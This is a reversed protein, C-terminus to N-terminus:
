TVVKTVLGLLRMPLPVSRIVEVGPERSFGLMSFKRRGTFRAPAVSQDQNVQRLILRQGAVSVALTSDFTIIAECIRAIQSVLTGNRSEIAPPLTKAYLEPEYGAVIHASPNDLALAGGPGVLYEGLYLRGRCGDGGCEVVKVTRGAYRAPLTWNAQPSGASLRVSGDLTAAEQGMLELRYGDARLTCAFLRNDIECVSEFRDDAHGKGLDWSCWGNLQEVRASFFVALTGDENVLFAYQEARERTGHLVALDYPKKILHPAALSIAGAAYARTSDEFLYERVATLSAQLFLTAGDFEKPAVAACGYPTQKSVAMSPSLTSGEQQPAFFEGTRSFIQLHKNSVLHRIEAIDGGLTIQISDTDRGERIGFDFYRAVSSGWLGHPREPSGGFWLRQDHFCVAAPYGNVPSFVAEDWGRLPTGAVAFQVNPGGGDTSITSVASAGISYTNEDIVSITRAGNLNAATIGGVDNAGSITVTAGSTLGHMVHTVDVWASGSTTRFPNALYKGRIIGHVTANAVSASTLSNITMETQFIRFRVGVHGAKFIPSSATLTISGSAASPTLTVADDEFKYYPQYVRTGDATADYALDTATFAMLGTRKIVQTKMLPHCIVMVDALQAHTLEYLVDGTWPRGAITGVPLVNWDEDVRFIQVAQHQFAFVYRERVSFEFGILRSRGNLGTVDSFCPRDEFGGTNMLGVNRLRRAGNVYAGAEVRMLMTPDVEGASFNTQLQTITPM